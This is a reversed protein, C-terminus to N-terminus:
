KLKKACSPGVGLEISEPSTLRACCVRCRGENYIAYGAPLERKWLKTIVWLLSKGSQTTPHVKTKNTAIIIPAGQGNKSLIGMYSYDKINNGGTLVSVFITKKGNTVKTTLKFTFHKKPSKITFIFRTDDEKNYLENISTIDLNSM